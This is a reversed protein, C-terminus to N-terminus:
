DHATMDAPTPALPKECIVHKGAELAAISLPAHYMNPTCVDIVDIDPDNIVAASDTELKDSIGNRAGTKWRKPFWLGRGRGSRCPALSGLGAYAHPRDRRRRHCGGEFQEYQSSRRLSYQAQVWTNLPRLKTCLSGDRRQPRGSRESFDIARVNQGLIANLFLEFAHPLRRRCIVGNEAMRGRCIRRNYMFFAGDDVYAVGETGSVLISKRVCSM